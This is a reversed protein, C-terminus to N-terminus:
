ALPLDLEGEYWTLFSSVGQTQTDLSTIRLLYATNTKLIHEDSLPENTAGKGQNSTNGIGPVPAFKLVGDDTISSGVIITVLGIAPAVAEAPPIYNANANQYAVSVGGTYTPLEFVESVIGDGTWSISRSKLSVPLDGTLFITNSVSGGVLALRTSGEFELGNKVNAERYGQVTMARKGSFLGAPLKFNLKFM